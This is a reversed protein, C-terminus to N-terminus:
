TRSSAEALIEELVEASREELGACTEFTERAHADGSQAALARWTAAGAREGRAQIAYQERLPRDAFLARGLAELEPRRDRLAHRAAGAEPFLSEVRRAIEEEREACAALEAARSGGEARAWARYREAALREALAIALPRQEPAVRGLVEGVARAVDPLDGRADGADAEPTPTPSGRDM